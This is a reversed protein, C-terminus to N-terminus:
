LTVAKSVADKFEEVLHDPLSDSFHELLREAADLLDPAAAILRANAAATAEMSGLCGHPVVAVLWAENEGYVTPQDNRDNEGVRWPGPTHASM